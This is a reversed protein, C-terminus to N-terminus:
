LMQKLKELTINVDKYLIGIGKNKIWSDINKNQDDILISNTNAYKTKGKSEVVILNNDAISKGLEKKVWLYKGESGGSGIKSKLSHGISTLLIPNYPKIFEWLKKGDKLWEMNSWFLKSDSEILKWLDKNEQPNTAPLNGKYGFKRAQSDFDTLVGDMDCYIQIKSKDLLELISIM